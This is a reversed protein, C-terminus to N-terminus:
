FQAPARQCKLIPPDKAQECAAAQNKLVAMQLHGNRPLLPVPFSLVWINRTKYTKLCCSGHKWSHSILSQLRSNGALM